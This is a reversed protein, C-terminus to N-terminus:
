NNLDTKLKEKLEEIIALLIFVMPPLIDMQDHEFEKGGHFMNCRTAYILSLIAECFKKKDEQCVDSGTNNDIVCIINCVCDEDLKRDPERRNRNWHAWFTTRILDSIKRLNELNEETCLRNALKEAGVYEVVLKTAADRENPQNRKQASTRPLRDAAILYMYNYVVFLSFFSDFIGDLTNKDYSSAKQLWRDCFRDLKDPSIQTM